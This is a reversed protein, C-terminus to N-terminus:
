PQSPRAERRYAAMVEDKHAQYIKWLREPSVLPKEPHETDPHHESVQFIANEVSLAKPTDKTTEVLHIVELTLLLDRHLQDLTNLMRRGGTGELGLVKGLTVKPTERYHKWGLALVEIVWWPVEVREKTQPSEGLAEVAARAIVGLAEFAAYSFAGPNNLSTAMLGLGQVIEGPTPQWGLATLTERGPSARSDNTTM